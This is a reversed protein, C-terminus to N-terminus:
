THQLLFDLMGKFIATTNSKRLYINSQCMNFFYAAISAKIM